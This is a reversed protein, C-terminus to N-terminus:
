SKRRFELFLAWPNIMDFYIKTSEDERISTKVEFNEASILSVPARETFFVATYYTPDYTAFTIRKPNKAASVHCPVLFEYTLKGDKLIAQFDKVYQVKFPKEDIKVFCFYDYESIFSFAKAKVQEVEAPELSGNKNADYDEAIMGAFMDDFTWRVKFGALGSDDFVVDLRQVIFVHPHADADKLGSSFALAFAFFVMARISVNAFRFNQPSLINKM